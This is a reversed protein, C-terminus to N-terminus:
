GKPEAAPASEEKLAADVLARIAWQRVEGAAAEDMQLVDKFVVM